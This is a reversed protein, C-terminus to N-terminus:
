FDVFIVHELAKSATKIEIPFTSYVLMTGAGAAGDFIGIEFFEPAAGSGDDNAESSAVFCRIELRTPATFTIDGGAFNKTFVYQSDPAYGVDGATVDTLATDPPIPEKGGGPDTWGGEGIKFSLPGSFSELGAYIRALKTRWVDTVVASVVQAM